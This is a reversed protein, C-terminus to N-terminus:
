VNEIGVMSRVKKCYQDGLYQAINGLLVTTNARISPEQDVQATIDYCSVVLLMLYVRTELPNMTCSAAVLLLGVRTGALAGDV